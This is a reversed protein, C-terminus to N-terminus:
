SSWPIYIKFEVGPYKEPEKLELIGGYRDVIQKIIFLGLGSHQNTDKTTYGAAFINHRIDQPIPDGNNSVKFQLGLKNCNLTLDVKPFCNAKAAELANDLLNGALHTIDEPSLPLINSEMNVQWNFEILGAKAEELKVSLIAALEPPEIKLLSEIHCVTQYLNEVYSEAQAYHGAKVYGYMASLHNYIDHREIQLQLNLKHRERVHYLETELRAERETVRLLYGAVFITALASILLVACSIEILADLTFSNYVGSTYINLSIKLLVLMLAQVLCLILLYSQRFLRRNTGTVARSDVQILRTVLPVKWQHKNFIHTLATLFLLHPLTFLIRLLPDSIVKEIDLSFVWVLLPVFISEALGLVVSALIMVTVAPRWPIKLFLNLLIVMLIVQLISHIGFVMPISRVTYSFLSTLLSLVIVYIPNVKKGVIALSMNYLVLSEPFSVGLFPILPLFDM